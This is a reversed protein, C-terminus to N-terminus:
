ICMYLDLIIEVSPLQIGHWAVGCWLRATRSFLWSCLIGCCVILVGGCEVCRCSVGESCCQRWQIVPVRACEPCSEQQLAGTHLAGACGRFQLRAERKQPVGCQGVTCTGFRFYGGHESVWVGYYEGTDPHECLGTCRTCQRADCGNHVNLLVPMRGPHHARKGM